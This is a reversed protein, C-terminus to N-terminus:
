ARQQLGSLADLLEINIYEAVCACRVRNGRVSSETAPEITLVANTTTVFPQLKKIERWLLPIAIVSDLDTQIQDM